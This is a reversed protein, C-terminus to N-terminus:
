FNLEENVSGVEHVLNAHEQLSVNQVSFIGMIASLEVRTFQELFIISICCWGWCKAGAPWLNLYKSSYNVHFDMVLPSSVVRLSVIKIDDQDMRLIHWYENINGVTVV